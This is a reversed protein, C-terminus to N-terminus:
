APFVWIHGLSTSGVMDDWAPTESDDEDMHQEYEDENICRIEYDGVVIVSDWNGQLLGDEFLEQAIEDRFASLDINRKAMMTVVEDACSISMEDM